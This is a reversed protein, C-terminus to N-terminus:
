YQNLPIILSNQPGVKLDSEASQLSDQEHAGKVAGHTQGVLNKSHGQYDEALRLLTDIAQQDPFVILIPMLDARKLSVSM